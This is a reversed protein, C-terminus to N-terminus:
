NGSPGRRPVFTRVSQGLIMLEEPIWLRIPAHPLQTSERIIRYKGIPQNRCCFGKADDTPFSLDSIESSARAPWKPHLIHNVRVISGPLLDPFTFDEQLGLTADPSLFAGHQRRKRWDITWRLGRGM